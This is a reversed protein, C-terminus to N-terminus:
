GAVFPSASVKFARSLSIEPTDTGTSGWVWIGESAASIILLYSGVAPNTIEGDVGYTLEIITDPNAPDVYQFVVTVPDIPAGALNTFLALCRVGTPPHYEQLTQVPSM